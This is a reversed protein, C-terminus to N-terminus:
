YEPASGMNITKLSQESYIRHLAGGRRWGTPESGVLGKRVLSFRGAATQPAPQDSGADSGLQEARVAAPAPWPWRCFLTGRTVGEDQARPVAGPRRAPQLKGTDDRSPERVPLM